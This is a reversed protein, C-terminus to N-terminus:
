SEGYAQTVVLGEMRKEVARCLDESLPAAASMVGKLSKLNYKDLLSSNAFTILVPPVVLMFTIGYRQICDLVSREDFRPLVVMPAGSVLTHLVLLTFSYMHSLPLYALTIDNQPSLTPYSSLTM